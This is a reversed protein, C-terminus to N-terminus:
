SAFPTSTLSQIINNLSRTKGSSKRRVIFTWKKSTSGRRQIRSKQSSSKRKGSSRKKKKKTTTTKKNQNLKLLNQFYSRNRLVSRKTKKTSTGSSAKCNEIVTQLSKTKGYKVGDASKSSEFESSERVRERLLSTLPLLMEQKNKHFGSDQLQLLAEVAEREATHLTLLNSTSETSSSAEGEPLFGTVTSDCSRMNTTNLVQEEMCTDTFRVQNPPTQKMKPPESSSRQQSGPSPSTDTENEKDCELKLSRTVPSNGSVM